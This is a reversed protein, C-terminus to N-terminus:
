NKYRILTGEYPNLVFYREHLVMIMVAGHKYGVGKIVPLKPM